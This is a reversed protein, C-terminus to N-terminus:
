RTATRRCVQRSARVSHQRRRRTAARRDCAPRPAPDTGEAVIRAIIDGNGGAAFGISLTVTRSPYADQAAVFRYGLALLGLSAFLVAYTPSRM